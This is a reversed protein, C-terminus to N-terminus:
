LRYAVLRTADNISPNVQERPNHSQNHTDSDYMGSIALANRLYYFGRM